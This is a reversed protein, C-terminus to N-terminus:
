NLIKVPNSGDINIRSLHNDEGVFYIFNGMINIHLTREDNLKINDEGNTKMRYLKHGDSSNSYYILNDHIGVYMVHDKSLQQPEDGNTKMKFFETVHGGGPTWVNFYLWDEDIVYHGTKADNLKTRGTGDIRIKYLSNEMLSDDSATQNYYIWGEHVLIHEANNSLIVEKYSGDKKLRTIGQLSIYVWDNDLNIYLGKADDSINVLDTGDTKLKYLKDGGEWNVFYLWEQDMAFTSTRAENHEALIQLETGDAKVRCLRNAFDCFYIWGDDGVIMDGKVTIPTKATEKQQINEENGPSQNGNEIASDPAKEKGCGMLVAVLFIVMVLLLFKKLM